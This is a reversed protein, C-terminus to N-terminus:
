MNGISRGEACLRYVSYYLFDFGERLFHYEETIDGHGDVWVVGFVKKFFHYWEVFFEDAFAVSVDEGGIFFEELKGVLCPTDFPSDSKFGDGLFYEIAYMFFGVTYGFEVLDNFVDMFVVHCYKAVKHKAKVLVGCVDEFFCFFFDIVEVEVACSESYEGGIGACREIGFKFIFVAYESM